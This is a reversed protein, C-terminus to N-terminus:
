PICTANEALITGPEVPQAGLFHWTPRNLSCLSSYHRNHGGRKLTRKLQPSFPVFHCCAGYWMTVKQSDGRWLTFLSLLVQPAPPRKHPEAPVAVGHMSHNALLRPLLPFTGNELSLFPLFHSLISPRTDSHVPPLFSERPSSHKKKDQM